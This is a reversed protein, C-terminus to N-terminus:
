ESAMANARAVYDMVEPTLGFHTSVGPNKAYMKGVSRALDPNAGTFEAVLGRWQAALRQVDADAPDTGKDMEERVAAILVKWEGEAERIRAEGVEECRAAFAEREEPTYSAEIRQMVEIAALLAESSREDKWDLMRELGELRECLERAHEMQERLRAVHLAIVKEASYEPADLCRAIEDLSFGLQKLSVIRQLRELDRSTYLRHGAATHHSPSLLGIEDYHHLTRVSLGTRKAIEGVKHTEDPM